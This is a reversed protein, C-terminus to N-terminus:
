VKLLVLLLRDDLLLHHDILHLPLVVVVKAIQSFSHFSRKWARSHGLRLILRRVTPM